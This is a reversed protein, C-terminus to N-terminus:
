FDIVCIEDAFLHLRQGKIPPAAFVEPLYLAHSEPVGLTHWPSPQTVKCAAKNEYYACHCILPDPILPSSQQPHVFKPAFRLLWNM